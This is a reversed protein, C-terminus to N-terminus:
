FIIKTSKKKSRVEDDNENVDDDITKSDENADDITESDESADNITKSDENADDDAENYDEDVNFFIITINSANKFFSSQRM